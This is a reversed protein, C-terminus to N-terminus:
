GQNFDAYIIGNPINELDMERATWVQNTTEWELNNLKTAFTEAEDKNDAKVIACCFM